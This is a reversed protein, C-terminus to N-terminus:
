LRLYILVLAIRGIWYSSLTKTMEMMNGSPEEPDAIKKIKGQAYKNEMLFIEIMTESPM